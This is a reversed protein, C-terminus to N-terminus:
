EGTTIEGVNGVCIQWVYKGCMKGGSTLGWKGGDRVGGGGLRVLLPTLSLGDLRRHRAVTPLDLRAPRRCRRDRSLQGRLRSPTHGRCDELLLLLRFPAGIRLLSILSRMQLLLTAASPIVYVQHHCVCVNSSACAKGEGHAGLPLSGSLSVSPSGSPLWLPHLESIDLSDAVLVLLSLVIQKPVKRM